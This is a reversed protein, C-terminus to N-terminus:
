FTYLGGLLEYLLHSVQLNGQHPAGGKVVRVRQVGMMKEKMRRDHSQEQPEEEEEEQGMRTGEEGQLQTEIQLPALSDIHIGGTPKIHVPTWLDVWSNTQILSETNMWPKIQTGTEMLVQLLGPPIKSRPVGTEEKTSELVM